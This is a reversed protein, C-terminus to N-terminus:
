EAESLQVERAFAHLNTVLSTLVERLPEDPTDAFSALVTETLAQERKRQADDIATHTSM